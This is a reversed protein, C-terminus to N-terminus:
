SVGDGDGRGSKKKRRSQFCGRPRAPWALVPNMNININM